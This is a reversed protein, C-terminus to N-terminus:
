ISLAGAGRPTAEVLIRTLIYDVVKIYQHGKLLMTNASVLVFRINVNFIKNKALKYGLQICEQVIADIVMFVTIKMNSINKM